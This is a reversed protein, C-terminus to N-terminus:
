FYRKSIMEHMINDIICGCSVHEMCEEEGHDQSSGKSSLMVKHVLSVSASELNAKRIRSM